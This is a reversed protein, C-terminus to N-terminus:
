FVFSKSPRNWFGWASEKLCSLSLADINSRITDIKSVFFDATDNVLITKDSYNPFCLEEKMSLLKKAARFLKWPDTSNESIFDAYFTKRPANMPYTTCKRQSKFAIFDEHLGTRRWKREAKRRLRKAAGIEATYWPASRRKRVTKSKLWAHHNLLNSLTSNLHWWHLLSAIIITHYNKLDLFLFTGLSSVLRYVVYM